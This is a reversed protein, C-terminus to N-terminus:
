PRGAYSSAKQLQAAIATEMLITLKKNVLDTFAPDKNLKNIGGFRPVGGVERAAENEAQQLLTQSM